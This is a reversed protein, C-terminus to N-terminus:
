EGGYRIYEPVYEEYLITSKIIPEGDSIDKYVSKKSLSDNKLFNYFLGELAPKVDKIIHRKEGQLRLRIHPGREWYRIFFFRHILRENILGYVFPKLKNVLLYKWPKPYYIYASLWM